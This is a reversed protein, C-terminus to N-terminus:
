VEPEWDVVTKIIRLLMQMVRLNGHYDNEDYEKSYLKHNRLGQEYCLAMFERSFIEERTVLEGDEDWRSNIYDKVLDDVAEGDDKIGHLVSVCRDIFYLKDCYAYEPATGETFQTFADHIMKEFDEPLADVDVTKCRPLNVKM